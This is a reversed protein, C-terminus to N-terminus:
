KAKCTGCCAGEKKADVASGTTCTKECCSGDTSCSKVGHDHGKHSSQCATLGLLSCVAVVTLLTRM